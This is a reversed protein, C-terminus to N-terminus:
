EYPKSFMFAESSTSALEDDISLAHKIYLREISLTTLRDYSQRHSSLIEDLVDRQYAALPKVTWGLTILTKYTFDDVRRVTLEILSPSPVSMARFRSSAQESRASGNKGRPWHWGLKLVRETEGTSARPEM